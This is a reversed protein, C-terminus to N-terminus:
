LTIGNFSEAAATWEEQSDIIWPEAQALSLFVAIFFIAAAALHNPFANPKM